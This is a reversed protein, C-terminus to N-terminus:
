PNLPFTLFNQELLGEDEWTAEEINCNKWQILYQYVERNNKHVLRQELIRLLGMDFSGNLTSSPLEFSVEATGIHKKFSPYM